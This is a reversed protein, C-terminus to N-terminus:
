NAENTELRRLNFHVCTPYINEGDLQVKVLEGWMDIVTGTKGIISPYADHWTIEVRDGPKWKHHEPTM